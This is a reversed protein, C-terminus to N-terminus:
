VGGSVLCIIYKGIIEGEVPVENQGADKDTNCEESTKDESTSTLAKGGVFTIKPPTGTKLEAKKNDDGATFVKVEPIPKGLKM